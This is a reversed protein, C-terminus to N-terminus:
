RWGEVIKWPLDKASLHVSLNPHQSQGLRWLLHADGVSEDDLFQSPRALLDELSFFRLMTCRADQRYGGNFCAECWGRVGKSNLVRWIGGSRDGHPSVIAHARHVLSDLVLLSDSREEFEKGCEQV